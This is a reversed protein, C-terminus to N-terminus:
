ANMLTQLKKLVDTLTYPKQLYIFNNALVSSSQIKKDAYGSCLLVKVNSKKKKLRESLTIGSTDPLVIDSFIVDFDGLEHDFLKEAESGNRASYVQYGNMQLGKCTFERVKDEDEIILIRKGNGQYQDFSIMRHDKLAPPEYIAPLYIEFVTGTGLQSRVQIFGEHEKIIGYVVSLGLGTGKGPSKTSYFPEFVHTLIDKSMGVGTDKITLKVYKGPRSEPIQKCLTKNLRVNETHITLEGGLQMADKANMALNMIVQEITGLDAWVYWLRSDYENKITIKEGILRSLMKQLHRIVDNLNLSDPEMPHKRSFLLLQRALDSAHNAVQHIENLERVVPSAEDVEMMALDVSVQIATLLNNFDHAVGGALVGVAEMKQSQFLQARIQKKEEENKEHEHRVKLAIFGFAMDNALEKLLNLEEQDFPKQHQGLINIVGFSQNKHILPISIWAGYNKERLIQLDTPTFPLRTFDDLIVPQVSEIAEFLPLDKSYGENYFWKVIKEDEPHAMAKAQLKFRYESKSDVSDVWVLPYGGIDVLKQCIDQLLASEDTARVLAENCKSLTKLARNVRLLEEETHIREAVEKKLQENSQKLADTREDVLQELRKQTEKLAQEARKRDDNLMQTYASFLLIVCIAMLRMAIDFVDSTFMCDFYSGKGFTWADRVSELCWYVVSFGLGAWIMRGTLFRRVPIKLQHTRGYLMQAVTGFGILLLVVLMRSLFVLLGPQFMQKLFTGNGLGIVDRVSEIIWYFASFLLGMVILNVKKNLIRNLEKYIM